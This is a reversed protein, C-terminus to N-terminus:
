AEKENSCVKLGLEILRFIQADTLSPQAREAASTAVRTIYGGGSAKGKGAADGASGASGSSPAAKSDAAAFAFKLQQSPTARGVITETTWDVTFTHPSLEGCVVGEGLGWCSDYCRVCRLM